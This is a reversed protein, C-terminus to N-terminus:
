KKAANTIFGDRLSHGTFDGAVRAAACRRRLIRAFDGGDVRNERLRGRLDFTRFIPGATGVIGLWQELAAARV